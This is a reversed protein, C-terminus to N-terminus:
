IDERLILALQNQTSGPQDSRFSVAFPKPSNFHESQLLAPYSDGNPLDLNCRGQRQRWIQRMFNYAVVNDIAPQGNVSQRPYADSAQVKTNVQARPSLDVGFNWVWGTGIQVAVSQVKPAAIFNGASFGNSNDVIVQLVIKRAVRNIPLATQMPSSDGLLYNHTITLDPVASLYQPDQDLWANITISTGATLAFHSALIQRFLKNSASLFDLLSSTLRVGQQIAQGTGGYVSVGFAMVELFSNNTFPTNAVPVPHFAVAMQFSFRSGANPNGLTPSASFVGM